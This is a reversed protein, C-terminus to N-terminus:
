RAALAVSFPMPLQAATRSATMRTLWRAQVAQHLPHTLYERLGDEDRVAAAVVFDATSPTIGLNPGCSYQVIADLQDAMLHLDASAGAIDEATVDDAWTFLALHLIM